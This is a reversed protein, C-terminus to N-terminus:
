YIYRECTMFVKRTQSISKESDHHSSFLIPLFYFAKWKRQGKQFCLMQIFSGSFLVPSKVYFNSKINNFLKDPLKTALVSCRPLWFKSPCIIILFVHVLNDLLSLLCQERTHTYTLLEMNLLRELVRVARTYSLLSYFSCNWTHVLSDLM